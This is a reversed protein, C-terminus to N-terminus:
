HRDWGDHSDGAKQLKKIFNSSDSDACTKVGGKHGHRYGGDDKDACPPAVVNSIDFVWLADGQQGPTATTTPHQVAMLFETPKAPNFIMGTAEAGNVQLSMFHDVSEAVGDNNVDRLFWVDGGVTDGNPADEIVYINGLADQALNDPSNIKGTTATFGVNKPTGTESATLRVMAKNGGLEEVAYVALESTAAFYLVENRNALRAVEVDEPRGYPAGNVENAAARGGRTANDFPDATTLKNGDADTIAVWTAAGTRPQGVNAANNYTAAPDGAFADVVLVFSQGKTYDGKVQPVFKYISGSNDEDVFYLATSNRNFRLGEHSVNPISNLERFQIMSVPDMPNTIEFVRGQGSWEEAVLLTNNPTWTSPDFAGYDSTWNGSADGAMIVEAFDNEISYRTVGAGKQTEHPIFVYKGTPDYSVMDFMSASSGLGPVRIISQAVVGEVEKMSTLNKYSIGAPVQWPSNVENIHNPTAVASSQTLPNFYVDTGASVTSAALMAIASAVLKKRNM